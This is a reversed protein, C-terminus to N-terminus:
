PKSQLDGQATALDVPVSVNEHAIPWKGKVNRYGDTVRVTLHLKNCKADTCAIRQINHGYALRGRSRGEVREGGDDSQGQMRRPVRDLGEQPM